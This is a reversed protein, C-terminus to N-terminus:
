LRPSNIANYTLCVNWGVRRKMHTMAIGDILTNPATSALNPMVLTACINQNEKKPQEIKLM